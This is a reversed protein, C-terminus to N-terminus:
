KVDFQRGLREAFEKTFYNMYGGQSTMTMEGFYIKGDIDYFDVRAQKHGKSLISACKILGEINKPKPLLPPLEHVGSMAGEIRNWDLDYVDFKVEDKDIHRDVGMFFCYPNGNFCWIKYDVLSSSYDAVSPDELLEEVILCPKIRLYHWEMSERGFQMKLWRSLEKQLSDLAISNKDNVLKVTSCGHNSKIVFKNPFKQWDSILEDASNYKGYLPVLISELGREKVYDRVEYKDALRAWEDLNANFKLWNIKENIDQPNELNISRGMIHRYQIHVATKPMLQCLMRWCFLGVTNM